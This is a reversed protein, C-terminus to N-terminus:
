SCASPPGRWRKTSATSSACALWVTDCRGQDVRDPSTVRRVRGCARQVDKDGSKALREAALLDQPTTVTIPHIDGLVREVDEAEFREDVPSPPLERGIWCTDTRREDLGQPQPM